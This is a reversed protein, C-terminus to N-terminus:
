LLGNNVISRSFEGEDQTEKDVLKEEEQRKRKEARIEDLTKVRFGLNESAAAPTKM